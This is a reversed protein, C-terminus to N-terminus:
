ESTRRPAPDLKNGVLLAPPPMRWGDLATLIFDIEGLVDPDNPDVVLASLHATRVVQPLWSEMFEASMAPLDLLQIQVDEFRMMGPVPM